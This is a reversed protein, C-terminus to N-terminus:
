KSYWRSESKWEIENMEEDKMRLGKENLKTEKQLRQENMLSLEM